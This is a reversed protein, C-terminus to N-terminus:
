VSCCLLNQLDMKPPQSTTVKGSNQRIKAKENARSSELIGSVKKTVNIPRDTTSLFNIGKPKDLKLRKDRGLGM